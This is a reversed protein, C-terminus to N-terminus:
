FGPPLFAEAPREGGPTGEVHAAVYAKAADTSAIAEGVVVSALPLALTWWWAKHISGYRRKDVIMAIAPFVMSAVMIVWFTYPITLPLPLLRALGPAAVTAMAGFMLRRHWDTERRKAIAWGALMAFVIIHAINVFLFEAQAFFPPGGLVQLTVFSLWIALVVMAPIFLAALKGIRRHLAINGRFVLTNQLLYLGTWGMFTLGHVHYIWPVHITSRGMLANLGFGSVVTAAMVCAMIFFFRAERQATDAPADAATAM